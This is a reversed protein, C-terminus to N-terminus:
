RAEKRVTYMGLMYRRDKTTIVHETLFRLKHLMATIEDFTYRRSFGVLIRDGKKLEVTRGQLDLTVDSTLTIWNDIQRLDANWSSTYSFQLGMIRPVYTVFHEAAESTYYVLEEEIEHISRSHSISTSMVLLDNDLMHRRIRDMVIEPWSFNAVTSGLFLFITPNDWGFFLPLTNNELDVIIADTKIGYREEVNRRAIETMHKSIDVATYDFSVGEKELVDMALFAPKGTGCGIDVVHVFDSGEMEHAFVDKGLNWVEIEKANIGGSKEREEAVAAWFEAGRGIYEYKLPIERLTSLSVLIERIQLPTFMEYFELRPEVAAM